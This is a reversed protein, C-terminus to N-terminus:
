PMAALRKTMAQHAQAGISILLSDLSMTGIGRQTNPHSMVLNPAVLYCGDRFQRYRSCLARLGARSHRTSSTIEFALPGNPDDYILDVERNGERWHYLRVGNQKALTHLSAAVLNELLLGMEAPDDLPALGRQLAANRVAGDVFYVKRGRRQVKSESGSYNALTFVLFAQELYSLYREFTPVTIGLDRGINSPSLIGSVRDALVYLLRELMMPNDVGFSQPIDKYLAREVADDRLVKQSVLLLDDDSYGDGDSGGGTVALNILEPFGGALLLRSRGKSSEAFPSSGSPMDSITQLLTPAVLNHWDIDTGSLLSAPRPDAIDLYETLSYPTLHQEEWRGIGSEVRGRHLAATASSTAAIQVPWREDYFTKLWMDWSEAYVLEDLMLFAPREATARCSEVAIEILDGLEERLLIPHDLRLWWVRSSDVGNTLLHAVTQYLVTTKGVRRPGLILQYRRPIDKLLREWLVQALPREIPPALTRPVKGTTRWPNQEYIVRLLDEPSSKSM